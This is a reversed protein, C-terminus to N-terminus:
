AASADRREAARATLYRRNPKGVRVESHREDVMSSRRDDPSRAFDAFLLQSRTGPRALHQTGIATGPGAISLHPRSYGFCPFYVMKETWGNALLLKKMHEGFNPLEMFQANLVGLMKEYAHLITEGAEKPFSARSKDDTSARLYVRPEKARLADRWEAIIKMDDEDAVRSVEAPRNNATVFLTMKNSFVTFPDATGFYVCANSDSEPAFQDYGPIM